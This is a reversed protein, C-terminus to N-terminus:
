FEGGDGFNSGTTTQSKVGISPIGDKDFVCDSGIEALAANLKKIYDVLSTTSIQDKVIPYCNKYDVDVTGYGAYNETESWCANMQSLTESEGNNEIYGVLSGVYSLTDAVTVTGTSYCGIITAGYSLNGALGGVKKEGEATATINGTNGCAIMKSGSSLNGVLGGVFPNSRSVLDSKNLCNVITAGHVEQALTGGQWNETITLDLILDKVTVAGLWGFFNNVIPGSITHGGGDFSGNWLNIGSWTARDDFEIDATLKYHCDEYSRHDATSYGRHVKFFLSYLQDVNAIEFPEEATGNATSENKFDVVHFIGSNMRYMKGRSLVKTEFHKTNVYDVGDEDVAKFRPTIEMGLVEGDTYRRVPLVYVYVTVVGEVPEFRGKVTIDSNNETEDDKCDYVLDGVQLNNHVGMVESEANLLLTAKNRFDGSNISVETLVKDTPISIKLIAALPNLNVPLVSGGTYSTEGYMLQYDDNLTGDQNKLDIVVNGESTIDTVIMDNNYFAYLKDGDKFDAAPTGEFMGSATGAGGTLVFDTLKAESAPNVIKLTDNDEWTLAIKSDVEDGYAVRSGGGKVSAQITIPQGKSAGTNQIDEVIADDACGTAAGMLVVLGALQLLKYTKM